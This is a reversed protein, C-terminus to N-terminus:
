EITRSQGGEEPKRTQATAQGAVLGEMAVLAPAYAPNIQLAQWFVNEAPAFLGKALYGKGENCLQVVRKKLMGETDHFLAESRGRWFRAQEANGNRGYLTILMLYPEPNAPELRVAMLLAGEGKDLFGEKWFVSGSGLLFAATIDPKELAKALNELARPLDKGSTICGWIRSVTSNKRFM